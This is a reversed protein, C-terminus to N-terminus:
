EDISAATKLGNTGGVLDLLNSRKDRVQVVRGRQTGLNGFVSSPAIQAIDFAGEEGLLQEGAAKTRLSLNGFHQIHGTRSHRHQDRNGLRDPGVQGTRNSRSM